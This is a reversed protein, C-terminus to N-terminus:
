TVRRQRKHPNDDIVTAPGEAPTPESNIEVVEWQVRVNGDRSVHGGKRHKIQGLRSNEVMTEFYPIGRHQMQHLSPRSVASAGSGELGSMAAVHDEDNIM